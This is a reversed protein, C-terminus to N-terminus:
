GCFNAFIIQPYFNRLFKPSQASATANMCHVVSPTQFYCCRCNYSYQVVEDIKGKHTGCVLEDMGNSCDPVSNCTKWVPIQEVDSCNFQPLPLNPDLRFYLVLVRDVPSYDCVHYKLIKQLEYRKGGGKLAFHMEFWCKAYKIQKGKRPFKIYNELLQRHFELIKNLLPNRM